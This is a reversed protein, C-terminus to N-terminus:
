HKTFYAVGNVPSKPFPCTYQHPIYASTHSRQSCITLRTDYTCRCAGHPCIMSLVVAVTMFFCSSHKGSAMVVMVRALNILGFGVSKGLWLIM